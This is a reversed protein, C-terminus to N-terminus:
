KTKIERSGISDVEYHYHIGIGVPDSAPATGAAAIRKLRMFMQAGISGQVFTTIDAIIHTNAPTNAPITVEVSATTPAPYVGSSNAFSFEIEWKIARDAAVDTRSIFHIHITSTSGEKGDHPFEQPDFDHSDNVAFAYGRLNGLWTVLSPNGAGVTKPPAMPFFVDKWVTAGGFMKLTGDAEFESYSSNTGFQQPIANRPFKGDDGTVIIRSSGTEKSIIHHKLSKM